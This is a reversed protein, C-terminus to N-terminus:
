SLSPDSMAFGVVPTFLPMGDHPWDVPPTQLTGPFTVRSVGAMSLRDILHSINPVPPGTPDSQAPSFGAVAVNSLHGAFTSLRRDLEEFSDVPMFRLFRNLPAPRPRADGELVVTYDAGEFSLSADSAARM